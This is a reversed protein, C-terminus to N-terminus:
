YGLRGLYSTMCVEVFVNLLAVYFTFLMVCDAILILAALACFEKLGGVGSVAGVSLIVVEIAYDRVIGEGVADVADKVVESAPKFAMRGNKTSSGSRLSSSPTHQFLAPHSFVTRALRLPKDFGVTIVLFPIAESLGVPDFPIGLLLSIPVSLM